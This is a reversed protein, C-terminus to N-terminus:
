NNKSEFFKLNDRLWQHFDRECCEVFMKFEKDSFKREGEEKYFKKIETLNIFTEKSKM